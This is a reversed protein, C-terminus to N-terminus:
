KGSDTGQSGLALKKAIVKGTPSSPHRAIETPPGSAVLQGGEPGGPGLDIVWDAYALLDPHHEAIVVTNGQRCLSRFIGILRDIDSFHLGATPEDLIYLVSKDKPRSLEAAIRMRQAEGGSLTHSPQGLRLYGLGVDLLTQLKRRIAEHANFFVAAESITMQLVDAISKGKWLVELTLANFRAGHCVDCPVFVDPLFQMSIKRIGDGQCVECRGGKANFSFRGPLYGRERALNTSAFLDRIPDLIGLFTAPTSKPSHGIPAQDVLVVKSFHELGHVAKFPLPKVHSRNLVAMAHAALTQCILSSKGSGSSGSCVTLRDVPIQVSIDKLNNGCAGTITVWQTPAPLACLNSIQQMGSLYRGTPSRPDRMIEAPTGSAVVTGGFEGAGPGMDVIFDASRIVEEDHEVVIVSNGQDRLERLVSILLCTEEPHLGRTPEDLIYMVGSLRAGLQGALRVKQAEGASLSGSERGMSLYGVGLRCLVKLKEQIAEILPAAIASSQGQVPITALACVLESAPLAEMDAINLLDTEGLFVSRAKENLRSGNCGQCLCTPHWLRATGAPEQDNNPNAKGTGACDPCAGEPSNPSFLSPELRNIRFDCAPCCYGTSFRLVDGSEANLAAAKGGSLGVAHELSDILRQRSGTKIRVRDIVLDLRQPQLNEFFGPATDDLLITEGDAIVRRYGKRLLDERMQDLPGTGPPALPALIWIPTSEPWQLIREAMESIPTARLPIHHHPCYVTGVRAFLLRLYNSIETATGVTSRANGAGGAQALAIAPSIGEIFDAEPAPLIDLFKRSYASMGQIFRRQGEAYLTDYALSSKGSGSPGTIVVLKGRPIDISVNRLNHIRANGIKIQNM